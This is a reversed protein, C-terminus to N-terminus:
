DRGGFALGARVRWQGDYDMTGDAYLAIAKHVNIHAGVQVGARLDWRSMSYGLLGGTGDPGPEPWGKDKAGAVDFGMGDTGFVLGLHPTLPGLDLQYGVTTLFEARWARSSSNWPMTAGSFRGGQISSEFALHLGCDLGFVWRLGFGGGVFTGGRVEQTGIFAGTEKDDRPLRAELDYSRTGREGVVEATLIDLFYSKDGRAAAPRTAAALAVGVLCAVITTRSRM